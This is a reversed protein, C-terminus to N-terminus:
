FTVTVAVSFDVQEYVQIQPISFEGSQVASKIAAEVEDRTDYEGSESITNYEDHFNILFRM